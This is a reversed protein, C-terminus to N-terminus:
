GSVKDVYHNDTVKILATEILASPSFTIPTVRFTSHCLCLPCITLFRWYFTISLQYSSLSTSVSYKKLISFFWMTSIYWQSHVMLFHFNSKETSCFCLQQTIGKLLFSSRIMKSLHPLCAPPAWWYCWPPPCLERPPYIHHHCCISIEWRISETKEGNLDWPLDLRGQGGLRFLKGKWLTGYLM